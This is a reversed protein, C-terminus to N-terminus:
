LGSAIAGLVEIVGVAIDGLSTTGRKKATAYIAEVEGRDFWTGHTACADITVGAITRKRLHHRCEPCRRRPRDEPTPGEARAAADKAVATIEGDSSARLAETAAEDTWVGGCADCALVGYTAHAARLSGNCAPCVLGSSTNM